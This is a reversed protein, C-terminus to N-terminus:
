DRADDAATDIAAIAAAAATARQKTAHTQQQAAIAAVAAAAAAVTAAAAAAAAATTHTRAIDISAHARKELPSSLLACALAAVVVGFSFRPRRRRRRRPDAANDNDIVAAADFAVASIVRTLSLRGLALTHSRWKCDNPQSTSTFLQRRSRAASLRGILASELARARLHLRWLAGCIFSCGFFEISM